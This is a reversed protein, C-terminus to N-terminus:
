PRATRLPEQSAGPDLHALSEPLSGNGLSRVADLLALMARQQKEEDGFGQGLAEWEQLVPFWWRDCSRILRALRQLEAVLNDDM